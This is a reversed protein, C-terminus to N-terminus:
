LAANDKGELYDSLKARFSDSPIYRGSRIFSLYARTCGIRRAVEALNRDELRKTIENISLM